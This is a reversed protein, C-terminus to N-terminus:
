PAQSHTVPESPTGSPSVNKPRAFEQGAVAAATPDAGGALSMKFMDAMARMGEDYPRQFMQAVSAATQLQTMMQEMSSPQSQQTLLPILGMLKEIGSPGMTPQPAFQGQPNAPQNGYAGNVPPQPPNAGSQHNVAGQTNDATNDAAILQGIREDVKASVYSDIVPMVQGMIAPDALANQVIDGVGVPQGAPQQVPVGGDNTCADSPNM